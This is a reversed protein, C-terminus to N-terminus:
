QFPLRPRPLAHDRAFKFACYEKKKRVVPLYATPWLRSHVFTDWSLEVEATCLTQGLALKSHRTERIYRIVHLYIQERIACHRVIYARRQYTNPFKHKAEPGHRLFDLIRQRGGGKKKESIPVNPSSSARASTNQTMCYAWPCTKIGPALPSHDRPRSTLVILPSVLQGTEYSALYTMGYMYSGLYPRKGFWVTTSTLYTLLSHYGGKWM